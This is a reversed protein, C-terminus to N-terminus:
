LFYSVAPVHTQYKTYAQWKTSTDLHFHINTAKLGERVKGNNGGKATSLAQHM